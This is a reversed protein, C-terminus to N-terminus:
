QVPKPTLSVDYRHVSDYYSNIFSLLVFYNIYIIMTLWETLPTLWYNSGMFAVSIAFTLLVAMMVWKLKNMWAIEKWASEPFSNLNDQMVSGIIWAYIGVSGFFLIAMTGHITPYAHEDFYGICPLSFTTILGLVLLTDNQCDSAIGYLRNYFARVDIQYCGLTFYLTLLCFIRDYFPLCIVSSIM